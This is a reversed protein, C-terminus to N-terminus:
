LLHADEAEPDTDPEPFWTVPRYKEPLFDRIHFVRGEFGLECNPFITKAEELLPMLDHYRASFHGLILGGLDADRAQMAAQMATSHYTEAARSKEGEMFTAEHYMVTVGQIHEILGPHYRTDSCFAYSLKTDPEALVDDPGVTTGDQLEITNGQKLLKYYQNPVGLEKARHILFRKAKNTERFKFGWAPIRHELPFSVVEFKDKQYLVEGPAFDELPFFHLPYKLQTQTIAGLQDLMPKLARPAYLSLPITREGLSLSFLLGPLGMFHDAHLHSIFIADLRTWRIKYRIAQIQAGEGCDVLHHRDNITVVQATPFRSATPIAASSGLIQVKFVPLYRYDPGSVM